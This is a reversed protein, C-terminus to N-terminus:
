SLDPDDEDIELEGGGYGLIRRIPEDLLEAYDLSSLETARRKKPREVVGIERLAITGTQLIENRASEVLDAEATARRVQQEKLANVLQIEHLREPALARNEDLARRRERIDLGAALVDTWAKVAVLIRNTAAAVGAISASAGGVGFIIELPSGLSIRRIKLRDEARLSSWRRPGLRNSPMSMREYGPLVAIATVDYTLSLDQTVISLSSLDGFDTFRPFKVAPSLAPELPSTM